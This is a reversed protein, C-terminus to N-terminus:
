FSKSKTLILFAEAFYLPFLASQFEILSIPQVFVAAYLIVSLLASIVAIFKVSKLNKM